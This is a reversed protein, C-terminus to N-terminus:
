ERQCDTGTSSDGESNWANAPIILMNNDNNSDLEYESATAPSVPAAAVTVTTEADHVAPVAM